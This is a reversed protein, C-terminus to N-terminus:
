SLGLLLPRDEPQADLNEALTRLADVRATQEVLRHTWARAPDAAIARSPRSEAHSTQGAISAAADDLADASANLLPAEGDLEGRIARGQELAGVIGNCVKASNTILSMETTGRMPQVQAELQANSHFSMATRM